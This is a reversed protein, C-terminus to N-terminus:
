EDKVKLRTKGTLLESMIGDKIAKTKSLKSKLTEIENDMDSLIQAIAQQEKIDFPFKFKLKEIDGMGINGQSSSNTLLEIQSLIYKTQFAYYFFLPLNDERIRILAIPSWINFDIDDKVIAVKGVSAAKGLLIDFKQPKCKRSCILDYDKSIYRLDTLDIKNNVLNNVSLFPIGQELFKPTEHPGDTVPTSVLDKISKEEWKGIFGSLRKKGTLIQQMTGQKIAEKKSILKETFIILEDTDRLAKSIEKQEKISPIPILYKKLNAMSIAPQAGVTRLEEIKNTKYLNWLIQWIFYTSHKNEDITIKLANGSLIGTEHKKPFIASAGCNAGIKAMVIDGGVVASRKEQQFKELDVYIYNEAYFCGDTVYGSTIIPIGKKKYHITKLNSGFPGDVIGYKRNDPVLSEISKVEWDEPILGIETQKYGEKVM